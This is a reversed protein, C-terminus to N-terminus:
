QLAPLAPGAQAQRRTRDPSTFSHSPHGLQSMELPKLLPDQSPLSTVCVHALLPSLSTVRGPTQVLVRTRVSSTNM